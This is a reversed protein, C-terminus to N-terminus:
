IPYVILGIITTIFNMTLMNIQLSNDTLHRIVCM